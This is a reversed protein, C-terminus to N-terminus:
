ATRVWRYVTIYPSLNNHSKGGGTSSTPDVKEVETSGAVQSHPVSIQAWYNRPYHNHTHAPIEDVTLAHVKSGGLKKITNFEAQTSDLGVTTRGNGFREWTGGIASNPDIIRDFEVIIGIPYMIDLLSKDNYYLVGNVEVKGDGIFLEFLGKLLIVQATDRYFEDEVYVEIDYTEGVDFSGIINNYNFITNDKTLVKTIYAGWVSASTKKTRVKMVLTDNKNIGDINLRDFTGTLKLQAQEEVDNVRFMEIHTIKPSEYNIFRIFPKHIGTNTSIVNNTAIIPTDNEYVNEEIEVIYKNITAGNKAMANCEVQIMSVDQVIWQNNQTKNFAMSIDKYSISNITPKNIIQNINFIISSQTDGLRKGSEYTEITVYGKISVGDGLLQYLEYLQSQSFKIKLPYKLNTSKFDMLSYFETGDIILKLNNTFNDSYTYVITDFDSEITTSSDNIYSFGTTKITIPRRIIVSGDRGWLEVNFTYSKGPALGTITNAGNLCNDKYLTGTTNLIRVYWYNYPSTYSIHFTATDHTVESLTASLTGEPVTLVPLGINGSGNIYSSSVSTGISHWQSRVDTGWALDFSGSCMVGSFQGASLTIHTPVRQESTHFKYYLNNVALSVGNAKGYWQFNFDVHYKLNPYVGSIYENTNIVYDWWSPLNTGMHFRTM